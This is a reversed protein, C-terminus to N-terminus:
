WQFNGQIEKNVLPNGTVAAKLTKLPAPPNRSIAKLIEARKERDNEYKSKAVLKAINFNYIQNVVTSSDYGDAVGKEKLQAWDEQAWKMAPRSHKKMLLRNYQDETLIRLMQDCEFDLTSFNGGANKAIFAKRMKGVSDARAILTDVQAQSLGLERRYKVADAFRSKPLNDEKKVLTARVISDYYQVTTVIARERRNSFEPMAFHYTAIAREKDFFVPLVKDFDEKSLKQKRTLNRADRHAYVATQKDIEKRHLAAYYATDTIHEHLVQHFNDAFSKDPSKYCLNSFDNKIASQEKESLPKIRNLTDLKSKIFHSSSAVYTQKDTLEYYKEMAGALQEDFAPTAAYQVHIRNVNVRWAYFVDYLSKAVQNDCNYKKRIVEALQKAEASAADAGKKSYYLTLERANFLKQFNQKCAFRVDNIEKETAGKVIADAVLSDEQQFCSALALQKKDSLNLKSAVEYVRITVAKEFKGTVASSLHQSYMGAPLILAAICFIGYMTKKM